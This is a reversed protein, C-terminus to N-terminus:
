TLQLIQIIITTVAIITKGKATERKTEEKDELGQDPIVSHTRSLIQTNMIKMILVEM